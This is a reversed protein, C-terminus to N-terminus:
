SARCRDAGVPSVPVHLIKPSEGAVGMDPLKLRTYQNVHYKVSMASQVSGVQLGSQLRQVQGAADEVGLLDGFEHILHLYIFACHVFDAGLQFDEIGLELHSEAM